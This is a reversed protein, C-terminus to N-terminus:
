PPPAWQGPIRPCRARADARCTRPVGQGAGTPAPERRAASGASPRCSRGRLAGRSCTSGGRSSCWPGSRVGRLRGVASCPAAGIPASIRARGVLRRLARDRARDVIGPHSRRHGAQRLVGGVHAVEERHTAPPFVMGQHGQTIHGCSRIPALKAPSFAFHRRRQGCLAVPCLLGIINRAVYDPLVYTSAGGISRFTTDLAAVVSSMTRDHLALVVRFRSWALWACFLVTKAGDVVPGDGFDYQLWMGPEPTVWPRHVRVRGSKYAARVRAVARRTTRESGRYGLVALKEHAVDARIKGKSREMWEELKAWFEDALQPRAVARESVGGADRARVYLGVTHHSCGALEAADRLSGTLDFAELMEM